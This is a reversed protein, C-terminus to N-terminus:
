DMAENRSVKKGFVLGTGFWILATVAAGVYGDLAYHWALHVSGIMIFAAFVCFFVRAFRGYHFSLLLFLSAIAVHVSPMAAIGSGLGTKNGQYSQWLGEQTQVAWVPYHEAIGRLYDMQVAFPNEVGPLVLHYFGPGASSLLTALVSGNIIWTLFFTWFFRRRLQPHRTSFLQWYLVAFMVVFWLNYVVNIIATIVAHGFIPQLLRWPDVGGHLGRDWAAFQADWGYPQLVPIMGKMVTFAAMFLMFAVFVPIAANIQPATFLRGRVDRVLAAGLRAPRDFLILAYTRWGVFLLFLMLSVRFVPGSYLLLSFQDVRGVVVCVGFVGAVYVLIFLLLGWGPANLFAPSFKM